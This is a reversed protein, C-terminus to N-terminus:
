GHSPCLQDDDEHAQHEREDAATRRGLDLDGDGRVQRARLARRGVDRVRGTKAPPVAGLSAVAGVASEYVQLGAPFTAYRPSSTSTGFPLSDAVTSTSTRVPTLPVSASSQSVFGCAHMTSRLCHDKLGWSGVGAVMKMAWDQM